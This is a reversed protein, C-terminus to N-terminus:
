PTEAAPSERLGSHSGSARIDATDKPLEFPYIALKALVRAVERRILAALLTGTGPLWPVLLIKWVLQTNEGREFLQLDGEYRRVPLGGVMRYRLRWPRDFHTVETEIAVGRSRMVCTAGVGGPAPYGEQRVVVEHVSAWDQWRAADAFLDFVARIPAAVEMQIRLETVRHEKRV